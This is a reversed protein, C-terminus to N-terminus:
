CMTYGAAYCIGKTYILIVFAEFSVQKFNRVFSFFRFLDQIDLSKNSCSSQIWYNIRKSYFFHFSSIQTILRLDLPDLKKTSLAM